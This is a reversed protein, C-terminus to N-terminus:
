VGHDKSKTESIIDLQRIRMSIRGAERSDILYADAGLQYKHEIRFVYTPFDDVPLKTSTNLTQTQM